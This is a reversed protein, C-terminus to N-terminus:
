TPVAVFAACVQIGRLADLDDNDEQLMGLQAEIDELYELEERAAQVTNSSHSSAPAVHYVVTQLTWQLSHVRCVVPGCNANQPRDM